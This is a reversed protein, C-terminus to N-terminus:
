CCWPEDVMKQLLLWLRRIFRSEEKYDSSLSCKRDVSNMKSQDPSQSVKDAEKKRRSEAVGLVAQEEGKGGKHQRKVGQLVGKWLM